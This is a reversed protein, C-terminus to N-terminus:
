LKLSIAGSATRMRQFGHCRRQRYYHLAAFAIIAIMLFLLQKPMGFVQVVAVVAAAVVGQVGGGAAVFATVAGSTAKAATKVGQPTNSPLINGVVDAVFNGTSAASVINIAASALKPVVSQVSNQATAYQVAGVTKSQLATQSATQLTNNAGLLSTGVSQLNEKAYSGLNFTTATGSLFVGSFLLQRGAQLLNGQAISLISEGL